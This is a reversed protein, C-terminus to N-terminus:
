EGGLMEVCEGGGVGLGEEWVCHEGMVLTRYLFYLM